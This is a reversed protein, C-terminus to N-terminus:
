LFCKGSFGKLLFEHFEVSSFILFVEISQKGLFYQLREISGIEITPMEDIQLSIHTSSPGFHRISSELFESSSGDYELILLVEERVVLM